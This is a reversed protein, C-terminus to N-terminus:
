RDSGEYARRGCGAVTGCMFIRTGAFVHNVDRSRAIKADQVGKRVAGCTSIRERCNPETYIRAKDMLKAVACFQLGIVLPAFTQVGFM